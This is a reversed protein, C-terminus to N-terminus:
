NVNSKDDTDPEEEEPHEDMYDPISRMLVRGLALAHREYSLRTEIVDAIMNHVDEGIDENSCDSDEVFMNAMQILLETRLDPDETKKVENYMDILDKSFTM